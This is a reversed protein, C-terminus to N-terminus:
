IMRYKSTLDVTAPLKLYDLRHHRRNIRRHDKILMGEMGEPHHGMCELVSRETGDPHLFVSDYPYPIRHPFRKM